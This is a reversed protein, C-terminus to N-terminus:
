SVVRRRRDRILFAHPLGSLRAPDARPLLHHTMHKQYYVTRGAPLPGATLQEVVEPWRTPMSRMIEDRGPHAIGTETLYYGYLPEDVVVTDPRNEFSRMLGTSVTGPGWWM